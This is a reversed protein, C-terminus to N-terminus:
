ASAGPWRSSFDHDDEPLTWLCHLHDPLIVVANLSFPHRKRVEAFATRLLDVSSSDKLIPRRDLTVLTFFFTGGPAFARRYDPM